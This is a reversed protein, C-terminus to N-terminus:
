VRQNLVYQIEFRFLSTRRSASEPAIQRRLGHHLARQIPAHRPLKTSNERIEPQLPQLNHYRLNHIKHDNQSTNPPPPPQQQLLLHYHHSVAENSPTNTRASPPPPPRSSCPFALVLSQGSEAVLSTLSQIPKRKRKRKPASSRRM